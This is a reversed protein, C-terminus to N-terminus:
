AAGTGSGAVIVSMNAPPLASTASRLRFDVVTAYNKVSEGLFRIRRLAEAPDAEVHDFCIGAACGTM